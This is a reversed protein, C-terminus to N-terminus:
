LNLPKRATLGVFKEGEAPTVSESREGLFTGAYGAREARM